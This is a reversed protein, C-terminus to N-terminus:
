PMAARRTLATGLVAVLALMVIVAALLPEPPVRALVALLGALCATEFHFACSAAVVGLLALLLSALAPRTLGFVALPRTGVTLRPPDPAILLGAGADITVFVDGRGPRLEALSVTVHRQPRVAKVAQTRLEGRRAEVRLESTGGYLMLVPVSLDLAGEHGAPVAFRWERGGGNAPRPSPLSVLSGEAREPVARRGAVARASLELALLLVIAGMVAGLVRGLGWAASSMPRMAQLLEYGGRRDDAALGAALPLLLVAAAVFLLGGFVEAALDPAPVGLAAAGVAAGLVAAMALFRLGALRLYNSFAVTILAKM